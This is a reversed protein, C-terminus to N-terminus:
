RAAGGVGQFSTTTIYLRSAALQRASRRHRTYRNRRSANSPVRQTISAHDSGM